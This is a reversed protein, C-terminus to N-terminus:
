GLWVVKERKFDIDGIQSLGFFNWDRIDLKVSVIECTRSFCLESEMHAM